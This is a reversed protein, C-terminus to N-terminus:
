DARMLIHIDRLQSDPLAQFSQYLRVLTDQVEATPVRELTHEMVGSDTIPDFGNGLEVTCTHHFTFRIDHNAM